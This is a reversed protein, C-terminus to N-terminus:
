HPAMEKQIQQNNYQLFRSLGVKHGNRKVDEQVQQRFEGFTFSKYPSSKKCSGITSEYSPCLFYAVSYRDVKRNVMVKHEVSKYIDNSWAQVIFWEDPLITKAM